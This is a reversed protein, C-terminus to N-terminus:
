FYLNKREFLYQQSKGMSYDLVDTNVQNVNVYHNVSNYVCMICIMAFINVDKKTNEIKSM